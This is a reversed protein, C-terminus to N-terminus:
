TLFIIVGFVAELGSFKNLIKSGSVQVVGVNMSIPFNHTLSAIM